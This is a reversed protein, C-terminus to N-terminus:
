ASIRLPEVPATTAQALPVVAEVLWALGEIRRATDRLCAAHGEADIGPRALAASDLLDDLLSSLRPLISREIEDLAEGVPNPDGSM